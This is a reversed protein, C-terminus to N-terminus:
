RPMRNGSAASVPRCMLGSRRALAPGRRSQRANERGHPSGPRNRLAEALPGFRHEMLRLLLAAEGEQRGEQRGEDLLTAVLGMTNGGTNEIYEARYRAVEEERLDAYADIFEVYKRQRNWDAELTLLGDLVRAYVEVRRERPHQM